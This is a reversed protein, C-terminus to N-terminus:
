ENKERIPCAWVRCNKNFYDPLGIVFDTLDKLMNDTVYLKGDVDVHGNNFHNRENEYAENTEGFESSNVSEDSMMDCIEENEIDCSLGHKKRSDIVEGKTRRMNSRNVAPLKSVRVMDRNIAENLLFFVDNVISVDTDPFVHSPSRDEMSHTGGRDEMSHTGDHKTKQSSENEAPPKKLVPVGDPIKHPNPSKLNEVTALEPMLCVNDQNNHTHHFPPNVRSQRYKETKRAAIDEGSPGTSKTNTPMKPMGPSENEPDIRHPPRSPPNTSMKPAEPLTARPKQRPIESVHGILLWRHM